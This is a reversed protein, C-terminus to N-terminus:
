APAPLSRALATPSRPSPSLASPPMDARCPCAILVACCFCFCPCLFPDQVCDVCGCESAPWQMECSTRQSQKGSREYLTFLVSQFCQSKIQAVRSSPGRRRRRLRHSPEFPVGIRMRAHTRARTHRDIVLLFLLEVLLLNRTHSLRVFSALVITHCPDPPCKERTREEDRKLM